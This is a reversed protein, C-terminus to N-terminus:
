VDLPIINANYPDWFSLCFFPNSLNTSSIIAEVERIQSLYCIDLDLFALCEWILHIWLSECRCMNCNFHRFFFLSLSELLVCM